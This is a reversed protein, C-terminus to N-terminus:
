AYKFYRQCPLTEIVRSSVRYVYVHVARLKWTAGRARIDINSIAGHVPPLDVTFSTLPVHVCQKTDRPFDVVEAFLLLALPSHPFPLERPVKSLLLASPFPSHCLHPLVPPSIYFSTLRFRTKESVLIALISVGSIRQCSDEFNKKSLNAVLYSIQSLTFSLSDLNM